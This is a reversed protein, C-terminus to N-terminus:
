IFNFFLVAMYIAHCILLSVGITLIINDVVTFGEEDDSELLTKLSKM